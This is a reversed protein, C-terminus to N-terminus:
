CKISESILFVEATLAGRLPVIIGQNMLISGSLYFEEETRFNIIRYYRTPDLGKCRLTVENEPENHCFVGIMGQKSDISAVELIGYGTPNHSEFSPTHHYMKCERLLSRAFDKYVRILKKMKSFERFACISPRTFLALMQYYDTDTEDRSVIASLIEPPLCMTLGNLTTFCRPAAFNDSIWTHDFYRMIGLDTRGGGSACNEFVVNPFRKRIRAWMAYLNEHYRMDTAEPHEGDWNMAWPAYYEINCDLRFHNVQSEEIVRCIMDEVQNCVENKSLNYFGHEGVYFPVDLEGHIVDGSESRLFCHQDTQYRKSCKGVREPEMWLGCRVGKSKCYDVLERYGNPFLDINADWDGAFDMFNGPEQSFWSADHYLIEIGAEVASDIWEKPIGECCPHAELFAAGHFEKPVYINRIHTHMQYIAEDLDVYSCSQLIAPTQIIEGIELNRLPNLGDIEASFGLFGEGEPSNRFDFRFLYGGSYAIQMACILGTAQNELVCFPHRYRFRTHRGGFSYCDNHLQHWCFQGEYKWESNEFYGLRYPSRASNDCMSKWDNTHDLKGAAIALRTLSISQQACNKVELWRSFCGSGDSKTCVAIEVPLKTHRLNVRVILFGDISEESCNLYEWHSILSVGDLEIIFASAEERNPFKKYSADEELQPDTQNIELSRLKGQFLWEGHTYLEEEYLFVHYLGYKSCVTKHHFKM